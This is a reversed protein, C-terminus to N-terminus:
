YFNLNKIKFKSNIKSIKEDFNIKEDKIKFRWFCTYLFKIM